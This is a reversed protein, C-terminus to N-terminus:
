QAATPIHPQFSRPPRLRGWKPPSNLVSRLFDLVAQQHNNSLANFLRVVGKAESDPYGDEGESGHAQIAAMLDSTRGDHLFFIRKGLGWLPATRFMDGTAAGQTIGDALNSGMHHILLDSYLNVTKGQLAVTQSGLPGPNTTFSPQHCLNCGITSFLTKGRQASNSLAAPAPADLFRMFIGFMVWDAMIEKPSNFDESATRTVDNAEAGLNCSPDEDRATPFLENTVGMEVNYAEGAFMMLSKNQAKWGFRTITGDNGSRNVAGRIGLAQKLASNANMNALIARDQIAEVLGLGFVPTPIRFSANGTRNATEFDEQSIRCNPADIRGTVTFLAHVGGDPTGDPNRKFRVERVPGDLRIFSPITNTAGREHAM